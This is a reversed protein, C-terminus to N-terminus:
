VPDVLLGIAATSARERLFRICSPADSLVHRACTLFLLTLKREALRPAVADCMAGLASWGRSGWTRPDDGFLSEALTGSWVVLRPAIPADPITLGADSLPNEPLVQAWTDRASEAGVPVIRANREDLCFIRM